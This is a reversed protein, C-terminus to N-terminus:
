ARTRAAPPSPAGRPPAARPRPRARACRRSRAPPRPPPPCARRGRRRAPRAHRDVALAPGCGVALPDDGARRGQVLQRLGEAARGSTAWSALDSPPPRWPAAQRRPARPCRAPREVVVRHEGGVQQLRLPAAVLQDLQRGVRADAEGLARGGRLASPVVALEREALLALGPEVRASSARRTASSASACRGRRSSSPSSGSSVRPRAAARRRGRRSPARPASARRRAGPRPRRRTRRASRSARSPSRRAPRALLERDARRLLDAADEELLQASAALPAALGAERGVGADEGLDAVLM